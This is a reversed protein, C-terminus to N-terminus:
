SFPNVIQVGDIVQGANMDETYVVDCGYRSAAVVILADWFAIQSAVQVDSARLIMSVDIEAVDLSRLVGIERRAIEPPLSPTLKRTVVVYYECLVQTSVVGANGGMAGHILEAARRQKTPSAQDHSYVLVNTDLFFRGSM